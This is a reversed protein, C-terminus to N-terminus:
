KLIFTGLRLCVNLRCSHKLCATHAPHADLARLCECVIVAQTHSQPPHCLLYTFMTSLTWLLGYPKNPVPCLGPFGHSSPPLTSSEHSSPDDQQHTTRLPHKEPFATKTVTNRISRQSATKTFQTGSAERSSPRQSQTGSAERSATKTVTNRAVSTLALKPTCLQKASALDGLCGQCRRNQHCYPREQKEGASHSSSNM